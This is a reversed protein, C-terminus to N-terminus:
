IYHTYMHVDRHTSYVRLAKHLWISGHRIGELLYHLGCCILSHCSRTAWLTMLEEGLNRCAWGWGGKLGRRRKHHKALLLSLTITYSYNLLPHSTYVSGSTRVLAPGASSDVNSQVCCPMLVCSSNSLTLYVCLQTTIAPSAVHLKLSTAKTYTHM